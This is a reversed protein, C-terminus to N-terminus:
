NKYSKLDLRVDLFRIELRLLRLFMRADTYQGSIPLDSSREVGNRKAYLKRGDSRWTTITEARTNNKM